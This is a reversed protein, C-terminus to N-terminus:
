DLGNKFLEGTGATPGTMPLIVDINITKSVAPSSCVAALLGAGLLLSKWSM